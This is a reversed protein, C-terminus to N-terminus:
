FSPSIAGAPEVLCMWESIEVASNMIGYFRVDKPFSSTVLRLRFAVTISGRYEM